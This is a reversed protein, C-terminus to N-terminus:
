EKTITEDLNLLASAVAFWAASQSQEVDSPKSAGSNHEGQLNSALESEYLQKLTDRERQSPIRAVAIRFAHELQQDLSLDMKDRRVR